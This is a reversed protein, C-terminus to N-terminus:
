TADADENRLVLFNADEQRPVAAVLAELMAPDQVTLFEVAFGEDTHRRIESHIQGLIVETSLPPRLSSIIAAGTPSINAIRCDSFSGDPLRISSDPNEPQYRPFRRLDTGKFGAQMDAWLIRAALKSRENLTMDIDLESTPGMARSITGRMLGLSEVYVFARDDLTAPFPTSFRVLQPTVLKTETVPLFNKQEEIRYWKELYYRGQMTRSSRINRVADPLLEQAAALSSGM